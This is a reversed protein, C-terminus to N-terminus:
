KKVTQAGRNIVAQLFSGESVLKGALIDEETICATLIERAACRERDYIIYIRGDSGIAADPYSVQDRADLLLGESWTKGADKSCYVNSVAGQSPSQSRLARQVPHRLLAAM